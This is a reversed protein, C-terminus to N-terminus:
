RAPASDEFDDFFASPVPEHGADRDAALDGEALMADLEQMEPIPILPMPRSSTAVPQMPGSGRVLDHALATRVEAPSPLQGERWVHVRMGAARLVRALREHRRRSRATEETSRVDIVALVRSGTDCVLLDASLSGVRQLWETYSHRTPVRVFRSLPVQALVMYGPLARRLLEYSHREQVTMVRAPEPPWDQVTDLAERVGRGPGHRGRRRVLFLTLLLAAATVLITSSGSEIIDM